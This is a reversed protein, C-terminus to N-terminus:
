VKGLWFQGYLEFMSLGGIAFALGTMANWRTPGMFAIRMPRPPIVHAATIGTTSVRKVALCMIFEDQGSRIISPTGKRADRSMATIWGFETLAVAAHIPIPAM